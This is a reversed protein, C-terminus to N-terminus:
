EAQQEFYDSLWQHYAALYGLAIVNAAHLTDEAISSAFASVNESSMQDIRYLHRVSARKKLAPEMESLYMQFEAFDPFNM